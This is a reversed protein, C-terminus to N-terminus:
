KSRYFNKIETCVKIVEKDAMFPSIPLSLIKKVAKETKPLNIGNYNKYSKQKHVPIPYHILTEVGRSKLFDILNKRDQAEIVFQHFCHFSDQRIAPLTVGKINKLQNFYLKAVQTRRKNLANLKKLKEILFAAQLEDLRSNLGLIKHEYRNKQGYNRIMKCKEYIKKSNTTIAGADGYAGLNKTPYFSFAAVDGFSGAKKNKYSAGHAQCADEVVKLNHKKAIKIITEIDALQGFLHVPIIAKTKRTITKELLDVDMHYYEDIDILVPTAGVNTIALVTAVATNSVTIVEDEKGIGQAMLSIQLAELGNAVGVCYKTGIFKAFDKEFKEVNKGLIYRGSKLTNRAASMLIPELSIYEKQFTTM